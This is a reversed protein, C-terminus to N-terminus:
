AMESSGTTRGKTEDRQRLHLFDILSKRIEGGYLASRIRWVIHRRRAERSVIRGSRKEITISLNISQYDICAPNMHIHLHIIINNHYLAIKPNEFVFEVDILVDM